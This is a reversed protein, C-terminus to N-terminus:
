PKHPGTPMPPLDGKREVLNEEGPGLEGHVYNLSPYMRQIPCLMGYTHSIIKPLM